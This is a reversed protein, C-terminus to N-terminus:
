PAAQNRLKAALYDLQGAAHCLGDAFGEARIVPEIVNLVYAMASRYFEPDGPCFEAAMEAIMEDRTM